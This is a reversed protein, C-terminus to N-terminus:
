KPSQEEHKRPLIVKHDSGDGQFSQSDLTYYGDAEFSYHTEQAPASDWEFSGNADTNTTWDFARDKGGLSLFPVDTEVVVNSVPNGLDDVVHGRFINGPSLTFNVINTGQDLGVTKVEGAFGNAQVSLEAHLPAGATEGPLGNVAYFGNEDTSSPKSEFNNGSLVKIRAQAVPRGQQDVVLGAITFGRDIVLVLRSLNVEPVAVTPLATAYGPKKLIFSITNTCDKPVYSCSWTGDEHNTVPCTQFNIAETQDPKMGPTAIFIAVDGVPSGQEDVVMGGVTMAPDLRVTYEDNTPATRFTVAKPVHGEATVFVNPGDTKTADDPELIQADGNQDTSIYHSEGTSTYRSEGPAKRGFFIYKIATQPLGFGTESDLVHLLIKAAKVTVPQDPLPDNPVARGVPRPREIPKATEEAVTPTVSQVARPSASRFHILGFIVAGIILIGVAFKFGPSRLVHLMGGKAAAAAPLRMAALRSVLAAPAAEVSREALVTGLIAVTCAIGGTGLQKRLREVARGVRMKAAAESVGLAAGIDRMSKERFFRLLIAQRDEDELRNVAEDLHPSIEEWPSHPDTEMIAAQQERNRRRTESRWTDIAVNLTTRHLWAVLEGHSRVNPPKEAFRIFVVQTVDEAMSANALRRKAISYVLNAYRRVLEGFADESRERRFALLPDTENMKIFYDAGIGFLLLVNEPHGSFVARGNGIKSIPELTTDPLNGENTELASLGSHSLRPQLSCRSRLGLYRIEPEISAQLASVNRFRIKRAGGFITQFFATAM